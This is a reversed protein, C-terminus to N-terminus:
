DVGGKMEILKDQDELCMEIWRDLTEDFDEMVKNLVPESM